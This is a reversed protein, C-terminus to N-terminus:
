DQDNEEDVIIREPTGNGDDHKNTASRTRKAPGATQEVDEKTKKSPPETAEDGESVELSARKFPRDLDELYVYSGAASHTQKQASAPTYLLALRYMHAQYIKHQGPDAGGNTM